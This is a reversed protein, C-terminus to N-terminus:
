TEDKLDLKIHISFYSIGLWIGIAILYCCFLPILKLIRVFVGYAGSRKITEDIKYQTFYPFLLYMLLIVYLPGPIFLLSHFSLYLFLFVLLIFGISGILYDKDHKQCLSVGCAKCRTKESWVGRRLIQKNCVPCIARYKM